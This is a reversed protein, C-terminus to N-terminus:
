WIESALCSGSPDWHCHWISTTLLTAPSGVPSVSATDGVTWTQLACHRTVCSTTPRREKHKHSDILEPKLRLVTMRSQYINIM